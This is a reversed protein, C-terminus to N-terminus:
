LYFVADTRGYEPLKKRTDWIGMGDLVQAPENCKYWASESAFVKNITARLPYDEPPYIKRGRTNQEESIPCEHALEIHYINAVVGVTSRCNSLVSAIQIQFILSISLNTNM